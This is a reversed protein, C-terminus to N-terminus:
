SPFSSLRPRPEWQVEVSVKSTKEDTFLHLSSESVSVLAAIQLLWLVNFQDFYTIGLWNSIHAALAVGFGWLMPQMADPDNFTRLHAQARGVLSFAHVLVLIFLALAFLGGQLGFAIFQNTIDAGGTSEIVYPFWGATEVLPMGILWWQDIHRFAVDMLYSRHWGTGGTVSSVKALLYWIPAEMVLGMALVFAVLGFRFCRMRLRIPWLLWGVVAVAMVSMPGGSNSFGVIAVCLVIGTIARARERVECAMAIFFPLFCAGVSGLLSPHRFSGFCRVKGERLWIKGVGGVLDFYNHKTVREVGLMLVYPVLLFPLVRLIWRWDDPGTILSRFTLYAFLIDFLKALRLASSEEPRTLLILTTFVHLAILTKDVRVLNRWSFEKRICIRIFGAYAMIRAASFNFGGFDMAAGQTLFLVGVVM